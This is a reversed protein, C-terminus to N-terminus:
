LRAAVPAAPQSNSLGATWVTVSSGHSMRRQLLPATDGHLRASLIALRRSVDVRSCFARRCPAAPRSKVM